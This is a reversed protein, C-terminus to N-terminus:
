FAQNIVCVRPAAGTDSDLIERGRVLPIGLTSFYRPGVADLASSYRGGKTDGEVEITDSSEGGSFLGLQSFSVAEVGPLGQLQALLPRLLGERGALEAHSERLDVRVLLLREAAFGLPARWLNHVTRALLGAGVLLPLSLALQLGVLLRGTRTQ